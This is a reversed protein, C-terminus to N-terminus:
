NWFLWVLEEREKKEEEEEEKKQRWRFSQVIHTLCWLVHKLRNESLTRMPFTAMYGEAFLDKSEIDLIEAVFRIFSVSIQNQIRKDWHRIYYQFTLSLFAIFVLRIKVTCRNENFSHSPFPFFLHGFHRNRGPVNSCQCELKGFVGNYMADWQKNLTGHTLGTRHIHTRIEIQFHWLHGTRNGHAMYVIFYLELTWLYYLLIGVDLIWM